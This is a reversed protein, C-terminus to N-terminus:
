CSIKLNKELWKPKVEESSEWSLWSEQMINWFRDLADKGSGSGSEDDVLLGKDDLPPLETEWDSFLIWMASALSRCKNMLCEMGRYVKGWKMFQALSIWDVLKENSSLCDVKVEVIFFIVEFFDIDYLTGFTSTANTSPVEGTWTLYKGKKFFILNRQWLWLM